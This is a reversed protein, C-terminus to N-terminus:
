YETTLVTGFRCSSVAWGASVVCDHENLLKSTFVGDEIKEKFEEYTDVNIINAEWPSRLKRFINAQIEELLNKVYEEIGDCTITEKELTDRRM